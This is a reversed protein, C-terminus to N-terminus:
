KIIISKTLRGESSKFMLLYNGKELDSLDITKTIKKDNFALVKSGCKKGQTDYVDVKIHNANAESFYKVSVIGDTPNPYIELKLESSHDHVDVFLLGIDYEDYGSSIPVALEVLTALTAKVVKTMFDFNLNGITDAMSHYNMNRTDAGDTIMLAKRGSDWFSAHDSRRLDPAVQGNGPVQLDILDLGPVYQNSYNVFDTILTSSADNGCVILFDGRNNNNQIQQTQTPFLVNFGAPISQSNDDESYYGIMEFNLVGQIDEYPKIANQVYQYSGVLGSEEFDFGIFRISHEFDYNSLIRLVELVAAVATGNDDAGPSNSVGDYHGDIIFTIAEDKVGAKRGLINEGTNAGYTFLHKETELGYQIFNNEISDRVVNLHTPNASYHRIGEIYQLHNLLETSDVQDVMIQIDIVQHDSAYVGITVNHIATPLTSYDWVISKGTGPIIGNGTDGSLDNIDVAEFFEGGDTSIKMWVECNDNEADVLDYDVQVTTLIDDVVVNQINVDPSTNQANIAILFVYTVLYFKLKLM